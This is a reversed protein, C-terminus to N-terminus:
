SCTTFCLTEQIIYLRSMDIENAATCEEGDFLAVNGDHFTSLLLRSFRDNLWEDEGTFKKPEETQAKKTEIVSETDSDLKFKAMVKSEDGSALGSKTDDDDEGAEAQKAQQQYKKYLKSTDFPDSNM